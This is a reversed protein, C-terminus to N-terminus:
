RLERAVTLVEDPDLSGAVVTLVGDDVWVVGALSRDRSRVVTAPLGDVEAPSTTVQDAPLPLPLTSGDAAFTRLQAAVSAPLGPLSLLYDRATEFPVGSSYATPAVLRGVVLAPAGSTSSWLQAVGPGVVLRLASGDLGPPPPPLAEGSTRSAREASFTFTATVQAGVQYTPRGTVGRPLDAVEPVELGTEAAAAAADPVEHVDPDGSLVLAGYASLDPLTLLDAATLSVPAVQETRFVQLWGGAAATGAGAVVLAAALGAVAPRQVVSRLRAARRPAADTRPAASLRRWAADADVDPGATLASAVLAADDRCAAVTSLCRPCDAVHRRDLEAVGVPEDVLRRLVGDAPHRM